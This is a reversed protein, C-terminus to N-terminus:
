WLRRTAFSALACTVNISKLSICTMVQSLGWSPEQEKLRGIEAFNWCLFWFNFRLFNKWCVRFIFIVRLIITSFTSFATSVPNLTFYSFSMDADNIMTILPGVGWYFAPFIINDAEISTSIRQTTSMESLDLTGHVHYTSGQFGQISNTTVM